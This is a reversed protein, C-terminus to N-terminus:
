GGLRWFSPLNFSISVFVRIRTLGVGEGEGTQDVYSTGARLSWRDGLRRIISLEGAVTRTEITDGGRRGVDGLAASLNLSTRQGLPRRWTMSVRTSDAAGGIGTSSGSRRTLSLSLSQGAKNYSLSARADYGWSDSSDGFFDNFAPGAGGRLTLYPSLRTTWGGELRYVRSNEFEKFDQHTVRWEVSWDSRADYSREYRFFGEFRNQDSLTVEALPSEFEDFARVTHSLGWALASVQSLEYDMDMSASNSFSDRRVAANGVPIGFFFFEPATSFDPSRIFSETLIMQLRNTLRAEYSAAAQHTEHDLESQTPFRSFGVSYSASFISDQGISNVGIRPTILYTTTEGGGAIDSFDSSGLRPNSDLAFLADFAADFTYIRQGLAASHLFSAAALAAVLIRLRQM